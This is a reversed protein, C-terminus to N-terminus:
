YPGRIADHIMTDYLKSLKEHVETSLPALDSASCNAAAQEPRTAGPIVVSVAPFDLCWRLAFQAMTMGEPVLPRIEEVIKLGQTYPLGAFTEGV